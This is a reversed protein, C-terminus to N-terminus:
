TAMHGTTRRNSLAIKRAVVSETSGQIDSGCSPVNKEIETPRDKSGGAPLRATVLAIVGSTLGILSAAVSASLARPSSFIWM